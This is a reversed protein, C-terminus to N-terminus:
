TLSEKLHKKLYTIHDEFQELSGVMQERLVTKAHAEAYNGGRLDYEVNDVIDTMFDILNHQESSDSTKAQKQLEEKFALFDFKM